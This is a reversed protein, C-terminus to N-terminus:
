KISLELLHLSLTLLPTPFVPSLLPQHKPDHVSISQGSTLSEGSPGDSEVSTWDVGTLISLTNVYTTPSSLPTMQRVIATCNCCTCWGLVRALRESWKPLSMYSSRMKTAEESDMEPCPEEKRSGRKGKNLRNCDWTSNLVLTARHISVTTESVHQLMQLLISSVIVVKYPEQERLGRKEHWEAVLLEATSCLLPLSDIYLEDIENFM